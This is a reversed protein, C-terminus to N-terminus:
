HPTRSFILNDYTLILNPSASATDSATMEDVSAKPVQQASRGGTRNVVRWTQQVLLSSM